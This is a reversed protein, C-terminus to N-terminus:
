EGTIPIRYRFSSVSVISGITISTSSLVLDAVSTGVSGDMRPTWDSSYARFWGAEGDSLAASEATLAGHVIEGGAAPGFSGFRLEALIEGSEEAEPTAPQVGSYIRLYGGQLADAM